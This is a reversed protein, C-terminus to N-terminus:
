LILVISYTHGLNLLFHCLSLIRLEIFFFCHPSTIFGVYFYVDMGSLINLKSVLAHKDSQNAYDITQVSYHNLSNGFGVAVWYGVSVDTM